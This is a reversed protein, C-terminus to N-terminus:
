HHIFVFDILLNQEYLCLNFSPNKLPLTLSLTGSYSLSAAAPLRSWVSEAVISNKPMHVGGWRVGRGVGVGGGGSRSNRM